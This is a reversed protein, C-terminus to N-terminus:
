KPLEFRVRTTVPVEVAAGNVIMPAYRWHKVANIAAEDFVGTPTAEIVQIDRTEGRIDVTYTLTVSGSIHQELANAPYEPPVARLRKLKAALTAPDVAASKAKPQAQLQQLALVSGADAGWRKAQALDADAPKGAQVEARARELLLRALDHSADTLSANSPDSAQLQMLYYAASDQPPDTLRGDGLRDRALQALRDSEAQAAKQRAAVLEKQFAAIDVPKMGAARAENIWRDVDASNKAVAAERAKRLYVGTLDHAARQTSASAPAEAQLQQLYSKASDDPDTLKGDRIRDEVLGALHQVRADEQHRAIDSRWKGIQEATIASSQQAQHLFATARDPNGDALAKSIEAAYLRQEFAGIRADAPAAAKFGALTAAAEDFRGGNMADDLRSALVAAIRKLGDIAEANSADAAVASRYYLLANDGSPETFRREKMARRAKELLDDVRGQVISTDAVPAAPLNQEAAASSAPAATSQAAATVPTSPAPAAPTVEHHAFFWYGGAALAVVTAAAAILLTAPKRTGDSAATRAAASQPRFTGINLDALQAAATASTAAAVAPATAVAPAPAAAKNAVADAIAADLVAQTKRPDIPTPLVAFVRSGKLAAGLQREATGEAFVLVVARPAAAHAADVAARVSAVERADIVLVQGRKAKTMGELAAELTDVPRVSAQGGLTQGLELLFDDRTTIATIDAAPQSGPQSSAVAQTATEQGRSASSASAV